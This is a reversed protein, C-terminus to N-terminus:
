ESEEALRASICDAGSGSTRNPGTGGSPTLKMASHFESCKRTRKAEHMGIDTEGIEAGPGREGTLKRLHVLLRPANRSIGVRM